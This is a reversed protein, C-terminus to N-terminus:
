RRHKKQSLVSFRGSSSGSTAATTTNGEADIAIVSWTMKGAPVKLRLHTGKVQARVKGNVVVDYGILDTDNSRSWAFRVKGKRGKIRIKKGPSRLKFDSPAAGKTDVTINAGIANLAGVADAVGSSNVKGELAESTRSGASIAAVVSAPSLSGNFSNILAAIGAVHPAAM